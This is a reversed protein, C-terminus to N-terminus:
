SSSIKKYNPETVTSQVNVLYRTVDQLSTYVQFVATTGAANIFWVLMYQDLTGGPSGSTLKFVAQNEPDPQVTGTITCPAWTYILSVGRQQNILTTDDKFYWILFTGDFDTNIQQWTSDILTDQTIGGTYDSHLGLSCAVFGFIITILFGAKYYTM